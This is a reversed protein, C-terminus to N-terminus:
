SLSRTLIPDAMVTICLDLYKSTYALDFGHPVYCRCYYQSAAASNSCVVKIPWAPGWQMIRQISRLERWMAATYPLCSMAHLFCRSSEKTLAM